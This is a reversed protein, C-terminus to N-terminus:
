LLNVVASGTIGIYKIVTVTVVELWRAGESSSM